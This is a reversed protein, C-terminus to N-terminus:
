AENSFIMAYAHLAARVADRAPASDVAAIASERLSEAIGLEGVGIFVDLLLRVQTVASTSPEIAPWDSAFL